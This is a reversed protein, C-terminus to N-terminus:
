KLNNKENKLDNFIVSLWNDLSRVPFNINRIESQVWDLRFAPNNPDFVCIFDPNYFPENLINKNSTLVKKNMALAEIIRMAMGTQYPSSVDVIVRSSALIKLYEDRQMCVTSYLSKDLRIGKIFEKFLTSRPIYLFSRIGLSTQSVCKRFSQLAYYRFPMYSGMFFFDHKILIPKKQENGVDDTYFLPLYNLYSIEASDKYDFSFVRDFEKSIEFFPNTFNSDWQYMICIIGPNLSKIQDVFTMPMMYGRIVFLYDYRNNRVKKLIENYYKLQHTKLYSNFLNNILKFKLNDIREAYLDVEAGKEELKSKILTDYNYFNPAIFLIKKNKLM